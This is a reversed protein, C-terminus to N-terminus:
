QLMEHHGVLLLESLRSKAAPTLVEDPHSNGGQAQLIAAVVRAEAMRQRAELRDQDTYIHARDGRNTAGLM